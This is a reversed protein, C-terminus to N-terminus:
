SCECWCFKFFNPSNKKLSSSPSMRRDHCAQSSTRRYVRQIDVCIKNTRIWWGFKLSYPHLVIQLLVCPQPFEILAAPIMNNHTGTNLLFQVIITFPWNRVSKGSYHSVTQGVYEVVQQSIDTILKIIPSVMAATSFFAMSQADRGGLTQAVLDAAIILAPPPNPPPRAWYWRRWIPTKRSRCKM